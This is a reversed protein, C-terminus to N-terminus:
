ANWKGKLFSMFQLYNEEEGANGGLAVELVSSTVRSLAILFSNHGLQSTTETVSQRETALHTVDGLLWIRALLMFFIPLILNSSTMDNILCNEFTKSANIVLV